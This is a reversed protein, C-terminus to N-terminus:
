NQLEIESSLHAWLKALFRRGRRFDFKIKGAEKRRSKAYKSKVRIRIAIFFLAYGHPQSDYIVVLPGISLLFSEKHSGGKGWWVGIPRSSDYIVGLRSFYVFIGGCM